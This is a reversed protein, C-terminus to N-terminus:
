EDSYLTGHLRPMERWTRGEFLRGSEKKNAGGWQEFFFPVSAKQCQDRIDAVWSADMPRSTLGSEGGVIVWDIGRLDMDPIPGLLPELSLFKMAAGTARLDDVRHRYDTSEVTVGMWVNPLWPLSESLERLRDSRKTLLQFQHRDAAKMVDFVRRIFDFPVDEHFLDGMSSVFITRPKKWGLPVKMASEHLTVHFGNAYTRLGCVKLRNALLEAYCYKCGASVKTCGTVPNWTSDTWGIDTKAGM